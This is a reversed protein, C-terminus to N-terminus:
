FPSGVTRGLGRHVGLATWGLLGTVADLREGITLGQEGITYQHIGADHRSNRMKIVNIARGIESDFEIYRLQIVNHFLFVLGGLARIQPGQIDTESTVLLSAGAARILGIVSRTYAAFRDGERAALVLEALSDIVVRSVPHRLLEGRVAAALVDLDLSGMPVHSIVLQGKSRAQEFDWGFATAMGVLQDATDQFTVYLCNEGRELGEAVYRLAFITKGAGSPGLVVTADGTAIGGGMLEDLAPTGSTLRGSVPVSEAPVLTEIRPYIEVGPVGIALAHKGERHSGGRMKLVRLWRRDVPERPEYAVQVIGDALSFEAASQIERDTYEGLLLLVTDTLAVRSTLDYLATRLEREGAFDRLMKASDIVILAPESDLASRVVETVLPELGPQREGRLFDGLHIHEVRVGLSDADFFDFQELHRVLKTHPESLTTYYIAKHEESAVGFCIQQALITKGTGPTGALVTTAGREFGGGLVLDLGAIGTAM